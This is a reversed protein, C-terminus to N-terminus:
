ATLERLTTSAGFIADFDPNIPDGIAAVAQAARHPDHNGDPNLYARMKEGRASRGDQRGSRTGRARKVADDYLNPLIKPSRVDTRADWEDLAARILAPEAGDRLLGDVVKSLQYIMQPRHRAQEPQSNRWSDVLTRATPKVASDALQALTTTGRTRTRRARAGARASAGNPADKDEEGEVEGEADFDCQSRSATRMRDANRDADVQPKPSAGAGSSPTAETEVEAGRHEADHPETSDCQPASADRMRDANRQADVTDADQDRAARRKSWRANAAKRAAERTANADDHSRQHALYDHVVVRGTTSPQPCRGCTHNTPHWLGAALLADAVDRGVGAMRCVVAVPIEGDTLHQGAYCLGVVYLWGAAPLDELEALKPHTPLDVSLRVFERRDTPKPAM